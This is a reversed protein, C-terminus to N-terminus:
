SRRYQSDSQRKKTNQTLRTAQQTKDMEATLREVNAEFNTYSQTANSEEQHIHSRNTSLPASATNGGFMLQKLAGQNKELELIRSQMLTLEINLDVIERLLM